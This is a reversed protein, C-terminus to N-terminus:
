TKYWPFDRRILFLSKNSSEWWMPSICLGCDLCISFTIWQATQSMEWLIDDYSATKVTPRDHSRNIDWEHQHEREHRLFYMKDYILIPRWGYSVKRHWYKAWHKNTHLMQLHCTESTQQVYDIEEVFGVLSHNLPQTCNKDSKEQPPTCSSKEQPPTCSEWLFWLM